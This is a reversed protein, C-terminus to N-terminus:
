VEIAYFLCDSRAITSRPTVMFLRLKKRPVLQHHETQFLEHIKEEGNATKASLVSLGRKGLWGLSDLENIIAFNFREVDPLLTLDSEPDQERGYSLSADKSLEIRVPNAMVNVQSYIAPDVNLIEEQCMYKLLGNYAIEHSARDQAGGSEITIVPFPMHELEMLAGLRISTFIMLDTFLATLARHQPTDFISVSFAPGAGSTNHIDVLAEPKANVLTEIVAKTLEGEEGDYPEKFCRNLDRYGPLNRYFFGPELLASKVSVVIVIMDVAPIVNNMLLRHLAIVGSPENGHLLTVMARTRTPSKGPIYIVTPQALIALFDEVTEGIESAKPASWWRLSGDEDLSM